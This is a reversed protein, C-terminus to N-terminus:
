AVGGLISDVVGSIGVDPDCRIGRVGFQEAAAMDVGRDGVMFSTSEDPRDVWDADYLLNLNDFNANSSAADLLQRGAELMGSNPKRAWAGEWPAYPSFLILDLHADPDEFLLRQRIESHIEDLTSSNWYGRGIPSQNTVVVIRYGARRLNGIATGAHPLLEVETRSNVYNESGVNIVGDRDLYAIRGDWDEGNPLDLLELPSTLDASERHPPLM